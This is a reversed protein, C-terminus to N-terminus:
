WRTPGAQLGEVDHWRSRVSAIGGEVRAIRQQLHRANARDHFLTLIRVVGGYLSAVVLVWSETNWFSGMEAACTM